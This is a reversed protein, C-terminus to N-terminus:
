SIKKLHALHSELRNNQHVIKVDINQQQILAMSTRAAHPRAIDQQFTFGLGNDHMYNVLVSESITDRKRVTNLIGDVSVVNLYNKLRSVNAYAQHNSNHLRM